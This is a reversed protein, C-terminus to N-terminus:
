PLEEQGFHSSDIIDFTKVKLENDVISVGIVVTHEAAPITESGEIEYIIYDSRDTLFDIRYDVNGNTTYFWVSDKIGLTLEGWVGTRNDEEVDKLVRQCYECEPHAYKEWEATDGTQNVYPYLELYYEALVAADELEVGTLVPESPPTVQPRPPITYEETPAASGGTAPSGSGGGDAPDAGGCAALVAAACVLGAGVRLARFRRRQCRM